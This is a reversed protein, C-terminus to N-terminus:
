VVTLSELYSKWGSYDSIDKSYTTVIPECIFGNVLSGDELNLTGLGLPQPIQALLKGVNEIPVAWIELEYQNGKQDASLRVLAPKIGKEDKVLYMKYIPATLCAKKLSAGLLVLQHNLRQGSLHLGAVAIDLYENIM